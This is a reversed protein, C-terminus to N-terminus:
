GTVRVGVRCRDLYVRYLRPPGLGRPEPTRALTLMSRLFAPDAAGRDPLPRAGGGQTYTLGDLRVAKGAAGRDAFFEGNGHCGLLLLNQRAEGGAAVIAPLNEPGGTFIVGLFLAQGHLGQVLVSPTEARRPAAINSGNLTFEADGTLRM